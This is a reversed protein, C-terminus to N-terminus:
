HTAFVPFTGDEAYESSHHLYSKPQLQLVEKLGYSLQQQNSKIRADSYTTWAYARAQGVLPTSNNQLVLAYTAITNFGVSVGGNDYIRFKTAGDVQVRFAHDGAAANILFELYHRGHVEEHSRVCGM